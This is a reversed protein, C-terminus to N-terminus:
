EAVPTEGSMAEEEAAKANEEGEQEIAALEDTLLKMMADDLKESPALVDWFGPTSASFAAPSAAGGPRSFADLGARQLVEVLRDASMPDQVTTAVTFTRKAM